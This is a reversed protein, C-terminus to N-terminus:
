LRRRAARAPRRDGQRLGGSRGAPAGDGAPDVIKLCVGTNTRTAPDEALFDLWPTREVYDGLTRANADARAILGKLGGVSKGWKLTDLYDEVCLMSPTNITDGKFLAEDIKGGKTM